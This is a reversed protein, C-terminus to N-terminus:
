RNESISILLCWMSAIRICKFSSCSCAGLATSFKSHTRHYLFFYEVKIAKDYSQIHRCADSVYVAFSRFRRSIWNQFEMTFVLCIRAFRTSFIKLFIEFCFIHFQYNFCRLTDFHVRLFFLTTRNIAAARHIIGNLRCIAM